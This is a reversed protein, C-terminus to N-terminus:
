AVVLSTKVWPFKYDNDSVSVSRGQLKDVLYSQFEFVSIYMKNSSKPLLLNCKCNCVVCVIKEKCNVFAVFLSLILQNQLM